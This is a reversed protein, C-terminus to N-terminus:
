RASVSESTQPGTLHVILPDTGMDKAQKKGIFKRSFSSLVFSLHSKKTQINWMCHLMCGLHYSDSVILSIQPLLPKCSSLRSALFLIGAGGVLEPVFTKSGAAGCLSRCLFRSQWASRCGTVWCRGCGAGQGSTHPQSHLGQSQRQHPSSQEKWAQETHPSFPAVTAQQSIPQVRLNWRGQAVSPPHTM